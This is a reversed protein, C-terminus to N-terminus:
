PVRHGVASRMFCILLRSCSKLTLHQLQVHLRRGVASPKGVSPTLLTSCGIPWRPVLAPASKQAQARMRGM